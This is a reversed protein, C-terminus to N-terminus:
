RGARGRDRPPFDPPVWPTPMPKLRRLTERALLYAHLQTPSMPSVRRPLARKASGAPTRDPTNAM